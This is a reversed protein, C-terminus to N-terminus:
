SNFAETNLYTVFDSINDKIFNINNPIEFEMNHTKCVIKGNQVAFQLNQKQLYNCANKIKNM